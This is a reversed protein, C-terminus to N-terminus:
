PRAPADNVLMIPINEEIRFEQACNTCILKGREADHRLERRCRPCRLMDLLEKSPM